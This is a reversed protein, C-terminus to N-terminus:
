PLSDYGQTDSSTEVIPSYFQKFAVDKSCAKFKPMGNPEYEQCFQLIYQFEARSRIFDAISKKAGSIDDPKVLYHKVM